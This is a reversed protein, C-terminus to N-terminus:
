LAEYDEDSSSSDVNYNKKKKLMNDFLWYQLSSLIFPCLIMVVLLETDSNSQLPKFLWNGFISMPKKTIYLFLTIILKNMLLSFLYLTFQKFWIMRDPPNNYDGIKYLASTEGQKNVIRKRISNHIYYVIVIGVTCDILYNLFYWSCEDSGSVNLIYGSVFINLFHICFGGILQKSVDFVWINWPRRPLEIYRKYFLTSFSIFLLLFQLSNSFLNGILKCKYESDNNLDNESFFYM